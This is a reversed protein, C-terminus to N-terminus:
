TESPRCIARPFFFFFFHVTRFVGEGAIVGAM